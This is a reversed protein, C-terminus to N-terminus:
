LTKESFSIKNGVKLNNADSYVAPLELVYQALYKQGFVEPYTDPSLNKEIDIIHFDASVWIIDLPFSMDKMWFSYNGTFDFVFIMGEGFALTKRGSLGLERKCANDSVDVDISSNNITVTGKQYNGCSGPVSVSSSAHVANDTISSVVLHNQTVIFVFILFLIVLLIYTHKNKYQM